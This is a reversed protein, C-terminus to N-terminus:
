HVDNNNVSQSRRVTKQAVTETASHQREYHPPHQKSTTLPLTAPMRHTAMAGTCCADTGAARRLSSPSSSSNDTTNVCDTLSSLQGFSDHCHQQQQQDMDRALLSTRVDDEDDDDDDDDTSSSVCVATSSVCDNSLRRVPSNLSGSVAPM